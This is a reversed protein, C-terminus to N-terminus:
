QAGASDFLNQVNDIRQETEIFKCPMKREKLSTIKNEKEGM